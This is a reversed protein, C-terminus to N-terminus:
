ISSLVWALPYIGSEMGRWLSKFVTAQKDYWTKGATSLFVIWLPFWVGRTNSKRHQIICWGFDRLGSMESLCILEIDMAIVPAGYGTCICRHGTHESAFGTLGLLVRVPNLVFECTRIDECMEHLGLHKSQLWMFWFGQNVYNKSYFLCAQGSYMCPYFLWLLISPRQVLHAHCCLGLHVHLIQNLIIASRCGM